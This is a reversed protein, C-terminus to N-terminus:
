ILFLIPFNGMGDRGSHCEVPGVRHFQCGIIIIKFLKPLADGGFVLCRLAPEVVKSPGIGQIMFFCSMAELLGDGVVWCTVPAHSKSCAGVIILRPSCKIRSIQLMRYGVGWNGDDISFTSMWAKGDRWGESRTGFSKVTALLRDRRPWRTQLHTSSSSAM